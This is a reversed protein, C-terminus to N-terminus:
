HKCVAEFSIDRGFYYVQVNARWKCQLNSANLTIIALLDPIKM